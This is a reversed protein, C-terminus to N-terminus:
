EEEGKVSSYALETKISSLSVDRGNTGNTSWTIPYTPSIPPTPSKPFAPYQIPPTYKGDSYGKTYGENYGEKRAKELLEELEKKTFEAKGEKFEKYVIIM